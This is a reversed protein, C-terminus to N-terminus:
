SSPFNLTRMETTAFYNQSGIFRGNNFASVTLATPGFGGAIEASVLVFGRPDTLTGVCSYGSIRCYEGGVFAVDEGQPKLKYGSGAGSWGYPNVYFFNGWGLQGYGNPMPSPNNVLPLNTFNLTQQASAGVVLALLCITLCATAILSKM